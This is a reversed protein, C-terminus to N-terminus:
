NKNEDTEISSKLCSLNNKTEKYVNKLSEDQFSNTLGIELM